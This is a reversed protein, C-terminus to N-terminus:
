WSLVVIWDTDRDMEMLNQYVDAYLRTFGFSHWLQMAFNPSEWLVIVTFTVTVPFWSRIFHRHLKYPIYIQKNVNRRYIVDLREICDLSFELSLRRRASSSENSRKTVSHLVCELSELHM